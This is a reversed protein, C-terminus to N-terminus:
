FIFMYVMMVFSNGYSVEGYFQVELTLFRNNIAEIEEFFTELIEKRDVLIHHRGM